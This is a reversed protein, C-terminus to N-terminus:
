GTFSEYKEVGNMLIWLNNIYFSVNAHITGITIGIEKVPIINPTQHNVESLLTNIPIYYNM